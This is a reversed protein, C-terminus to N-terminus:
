KRTRLAFFCLLRFGFLKTFPFVKFPMVVLIAHRKLWRNLWRNLARRERRIFARFFLEDFNQRDGAFCGKFRFNLLAASISLNWPKRSRFFGHLYLKLADRRSFPALNKPTRFGNHFKSLKFVSPWAWAFCPVVRFKKNRLFAFFRSSPLLRERQFSIRPRSFRITWGNM